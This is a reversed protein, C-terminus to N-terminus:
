DEPTGFKAEAKEIKQLRAWFRSMDQSLKDSHTFKHYIATKLHSEAGYNSLFFYELATFYSIKGNNLIGQASWEALQAAVDDFPEPIDLIPTQVEKLPNMVDALAQFMSFAGDTRKCNPNGYGEYQLKGEFILGKPEDKDGACYFLEFAKEFFEKREADITEPDPFKESLLEGLPRIAQSENFSPDLAKCIYYLGLTLCAEAHHHNAAVKLHEYARHPDRTVGRGKLYRHYLRYHALASGNNAMTLLCATWQKPTYKRFGM